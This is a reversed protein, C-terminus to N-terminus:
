PTPNPAVVSGSKLKDWTFMAIFPTTLMMLDTMNDILEPKLVIALASIGGYLLIAIHRTRFEM